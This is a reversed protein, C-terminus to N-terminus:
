KAEVVRTVLSTIADVSRFNVVRLDEDSVELDFEREISQVLRLAYLSSLLGLQFIDDDDRLDRAGCLTTVKTRVRTRIDNSTM